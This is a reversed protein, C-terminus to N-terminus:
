LFRELDDCDNFRTKGKKNIKEKIQSFFMKCKVRGDDNRRWKPNKITKVSINAISTSTILKGHHTM